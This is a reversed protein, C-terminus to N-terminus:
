RRLERRRLDALRPDDRVAAHEGLLKLVNGAKYPWSAADASLIACLLDLLADPHEAVICPDLDAYSIRLSEGNVPVLRPLIVKVIDSFLQPVEFALDALRASMEPNRLSRQRPWVETLFSILRERLHSEAPSVWRRLQQLVSACFDNGAHILLERLEVDPLFPGLESAYLDNAWVILHMGGLVRAHERRLTDRCCLDILMPKLLPYLAPQPTQAAWLYGAWFASTDDVASKAMPLLTEATWTADIRFLWNFNSAIIVLAHQKPDDALGILQTLRCKFSEPLGTDPTLESVHPSRFLADAMYGGPRNLSEDVWRRTGAATGKKTGDGERLAEIIASWVVEFIQPRESLLRESYTRLWNSAPYIIERMQIPSLRALRGGIVCLMRPSTAAGGESSLLARWAWPFFKGRRGSATLASLARTPRKKVLGRFPQRLVRSDYQSEGIAEASELIEGLPLHELSSANTDTQISSVKPVNPQATHDSAEETWDPAQARLSAFVSDYNFTFKIGQKWFWHLRCLRCYAILAERDERQEGWPFRAELLRKEVEAVCHPPLEAWRDRLAFLLDREQRDSWFTEGDLAQFIQCAEEATSMDIRGAAWIRMRISVSDSRPWQAIEIRAAQRDVVALRTVMNTYIVLHGTLGYSDEDPPEGDEGQLTDFYIDDSGVIEQELEIAHEIQQRLLAAAQALMDPPIEIAEHPRPYEVHAYLIDKVALHPSALPAKAGFARRVELIPRYLAIAERVLAPTWGYLRGKEEILYKEHSPKAPEQQWAQLLVRWGDRVAPPFREKERRLSSEILQQVDRHLPAQDAAWWLAAPQHVIRALWCGLNWIRPPLAPIGAGSRFQATAQVPLRERDTATAVLADWADAPVQRKEFTNEPNVPLTDSDLGFADFPDFRVSMEDYPDAKEPRGYRAQRDLVFLWEAPLLTASTALLKTGEHTSALHKIMGRQHPALMAPGVVAKELLRDHWGDVDRAREAWAALTEWLTSHRRDANNYSIPEVGKHAWQAAAERIDGSQFAYLAHAPPAFRNLAELLYRVPPDDASYGVFVIRFRQLLAQIYRTAWGDSLYAHGFDASSLVFEDDCARHYKEDVRGHLHIIGRFDNDRNPDPLHPPNFSSLGPECEEFLRDFNTTVLRHAGGRSRSLDLLIRHAGLGYGPKPQIATAVAERVETAEFERELLGFIRDTAVMGTLGSEKEFRRTDNFLRRAPSDMSSGLLALVREALTTFDPLRAEGMSVGAGCFFLVQGADRATLLDDPIAPGDSIFRM